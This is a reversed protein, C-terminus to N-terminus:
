IKQGLMFNNTVKRVSAFCTIPFPIINTIHKCKAPVCKDHVEYFKINKKLFFTINLCEFKLSFLILTKVKCM